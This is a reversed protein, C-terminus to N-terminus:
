ARCRLWTRYNTYRQHLYKLTLVDDYIPGALKGGAEVDRLTREIASLRADVVQESLGELGEDFLAMHQAVPDNRDLGARDYDECSRDFLDRIWSVLDTRFAAREPADFSTAERHQVLKDHLVFPLIQRLDEFGVEPAGRFWALAKAFVLCTQLARVSLGNKTQAGPLHADKAPPLELGALKVTDKTLYELQRAAGGCHEFESAFHEIRRLLPSPIPVARIQKDMRDLESPTFVIEPPVLEEPKVGAEIRELLAGLFRPNFHLAKVVVDIRDRLAEIV